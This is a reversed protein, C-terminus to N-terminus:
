TAGEKQKTQERLERALRQAVDYKTGSAIEVARAMFKGLTAISALDAGTQKCLECGDGMCDACPCEAQAVEKTIDVLASLREQFPISQKM